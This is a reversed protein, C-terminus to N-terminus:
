PARGNIGTVQIRDAKKFIGRASSSGSGGTGAVITTKSDLEFVGKNVQLKVPKPILAPLDSGAYLASPLLVILFLLIQRLMNSLKVPNCRPLVDTQVGDDTSRFSTQRSFCTSEM